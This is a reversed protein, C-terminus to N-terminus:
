PATYEYRLGYDITLKSTLKWNDQAYFAWYNRVSTSHVQNTIRMTDAGGVYDIGGPVTAAIPRLLVQTAGSLGTSQGPISTYVGSYTFSGRPSPAQLYPIMVHEFQM